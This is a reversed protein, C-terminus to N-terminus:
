TPPVGPDMHRCSTGEGGVAGLPIRARVTTGGGPRQEVSIAGEWYGVRERMGVLGLAGERVAGSDFGWGDDDVALELASECETQEINLRVIVTSAGSHRAVNTLAEQVVRYATTSRAADVVGPTKALRRDAVVRCRVDTREEFRRAAERVAAALGLADLDPLRLDAALDRVTQAAGEALADLEDLRAAMAARDVPEGSTLRRRLWRADLRLATLAQGLDDHVDRAVRAREGERETQLRATLARVEGLTRAVEARARERDTVDLAVGVVRALRGGEHIPAYTTEFVAEGGPTPVRTRAVFAEGSLARGVADIVEPADAYLDFVSEGVFSGEPRPLSARGAGESRLVTGDPALEFVVLPAAQTVLGFLGDASGSPAPPRVPDGDRRGALFAGIGSASRTM